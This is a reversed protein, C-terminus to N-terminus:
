HSMHDMKHEMKKEMKMGGGAMVKKVPATIKSKSGNEYVLTLDVKDGPKLQNHLGILMIHNGGPKLAVTKGAPLDIKDVKRMMMMGDKHIHTHLEVVKAANSEASVLSHDTKDGNSIQLFAASVKAGPPIARVYADNTTIPNHGEHSGAFLPATMAFALLTSILIRKM